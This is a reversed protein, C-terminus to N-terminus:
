FPILLFFVLDHINQINHSSLVLIWLHFTVQNSQLLKAKGTSFLDHLVTGRSSLEKEMFTRPSTIHRKNIINYISIVADVFEVQGIKVLLGCAVLGSIWNM